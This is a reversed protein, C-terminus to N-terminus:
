DLKLFDDMTLNGKKDKVFEAALVAGLAFGKRSKASHKVEIFDIESEYRMEHIGPVEPIRHATVPVENNNVNEDLKWNKYRDLQDIANEILTLATGSPADLKKVHHTESATLNYEDFRNMVKSLWNNLKFFINVGLSFNSAYFFTQAGNECRALVDDKKELWGTTGSVIPTNAEFCKLINNYATEPLSFDICVDVNQLKEPNLDEPNNKDIILTIEHGRELAIKEIEKGMRGYGLLAIKM